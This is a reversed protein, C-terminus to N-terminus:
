RSTSSSPIILLEGAFFMKELMNILNREFQGMISGILSQAAQLGSSIPPRNKRSLFTHTCAIAATCVM